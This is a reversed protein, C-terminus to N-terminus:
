RGMELGARTFVTKNQEKLLAEVTSVGAGPCFASGCNVQHSSFGPALFVVVFERRLNSLM